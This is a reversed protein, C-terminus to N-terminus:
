KISDNGDDWFDYIENSRSMLLLQYRYFNKMNMNLNVKLFYNIKYKWISSSNGTITTWLPKVM